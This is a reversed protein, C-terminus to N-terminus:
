PVELFSSSNPQEVHNVNDAGPGPDETAFKLLPELKWNTQLQVQEWERELTMLADESGRLVFWWRVLRNTGNISKFKRKVQLQDDGVTTCKSLTTTVAATSTERMTGWIKRAGMVPVKPKDSKHKDAVAKRQERKSEASKRNGNKVITAYSNTQKAVSAQLLDVDRRLTQLIAADEGGSSSSPTTAQTTVLTRLECLEAKLAAVEDQLM